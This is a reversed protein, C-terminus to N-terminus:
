FTPAFYAEFYVVHFPVDFLCVSLCVSVRVDRSSSRIQGTPRNSSFRCVPSLIDRTQHPYYCWYWFFIKSTLCFAAIKCGKSTFFKLLNFLKSMPSQSTSAFLRKLPTFLHFSFRHYVKKAATTKCGKSAFTKM